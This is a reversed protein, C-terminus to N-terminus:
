VTRMRQMRPAQWAAAFCASGTDGLDYTDATAIPRRSARDEEWDATQPPVAKWPARTKTTRGAWANAANSAIEGIAFKSSEPRVRVVSTSAAKLADERIYGSPVFADAYM